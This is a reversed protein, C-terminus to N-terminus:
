VNARYRGSVVIVAGTSGAFAADARAIGLVASAADINGCIGVNTDARMGAFAQRYEAAYPLTVFMAGAATGANTVTITLTFEVMGYADLRSALSSAVTTFSGAASTVTPTTTAWGASAANVERALEKWGTATMVMRMLLGNRAQVPELGAFENNGPSVGMLPTGTFHVDVIHGVKTTQWTGFNTNGTVVVYEDSPRLPLPDASVITRTKREKQGYSGLYGSTPEAPLALGWGNLRRPNVYNGAVDTTFEVAVGSGSGIPDFMVADDIVMTGSTQKFVPQLRTTNTLGLVAGGALSFQGGGSVEVAPYTSSVLFAGTGMTLYGGAVRVLALSGLGAGAIWFSALSLHGAALSVAFDDAADSTSYLAAIALRCNEIELNAFRGDLQVASLTGFVGEGGTNELIIKGRFTSLDKFQFGDCRGIRAAVRTGDSYADLAGGEFQYGFCWDHLSDGHTFDLSPGAAGVGGIRLGENIYGGEARGIMLGGTNGTLDPGDWGGTVRHDGIMLRSVDPAYISRPYQFFHSRLVVAIRTVAGAVAQTGGSPPAGITVTPSSTYGKGKRVVKISAISGGSMIPRLLAGTGGGGTVTIVPPSTYGAGGNTLAVASIHNDGPQHCVFGIDHFGAQQEDATDPIIMIGDADMDFDGDIEFFSETEGDGTIFNGLSRHTVPRTIRYGGGNRGPMKLNRDVVTWADVADSWDDLAAQAGAIKLHGYEGLSIADEERREKETRAGAGAVGLAFLGGTGEVENAKELAAAANAGAAAADELNAITPPTAGPPVVIARSLKADLEQSIRTQENLGEEVSKPVMTPQTPFAKKQAIPTRRRIFIVTGDEPASVFVVQDGVKNFDVGFTQAVGDITVVLNAAIPATFGILFSATVGDGDHITEPVEVAVPFTTM